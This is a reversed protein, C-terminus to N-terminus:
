INEIFETSPTQHSEVLLPITLAFTSGKGKGPSSVGLSGGHAEAILKAVYLGLGLGETHARGEEKGRAFKQFLAHSEELTLGPGTDTVSFCITHDKQTLAVTVGGTTTYKFANDILNLVIQRVKGADASVLDSTFEKKWELKMKKSKAVVDFDGIFSEVIESFHVPKFDYQMKGREMRSLDLLDSVLNILRENSVYVKHLPDALQKTLKGFSGEQIMSIYGKIISLPTRLQHSAISIFDSKAQDLRELDKNALELDLALKTMQERLAVEHLVSKILLIGFAVAAILVLSSIITDGTGQSTTLRLLLAFWLVFTLLETAIVKINFLHLKVIAYATLSIFPITFLPALPIYALNDFIVPLVFNFIIILTYTVTTGIFILLHQRMEASNTTWM